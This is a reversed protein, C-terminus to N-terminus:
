LHIDSKDSIPTIAALTYNTTPYSRSKQHPQSAFCKQELGDLLDLFSLQCDYQYFFLITLINCVSLM